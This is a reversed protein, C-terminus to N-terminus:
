LKQNFYNKSHYTNLLTCTCPHVDEHLTDTIKEGIKVLSPVGQCISVATGFNSKVFVKDATRWDACESVFTVFGIAM